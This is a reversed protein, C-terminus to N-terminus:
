EIVVLYSSVNSDSWTITVTYTNQLGGAGHAEANTKTDYTRIRCGTMNSGSYTFTDHYANKNTLGLLEDVFGDITSLTAPLTTGTDTLIDDVIGDITDIKGEISTLTAPLTTGTDVLINDVVTDLTTGTDTLINDVIGDITDIKGEISTLTAPLTTGTDVLINDVITDLTTGTDTLINDVIGDITAIENDITTITAPITTGTDTLINDVIGDITDIKGEISTLTAPLTTGTDTLIDDVITDLTTGTDTLINDVIGDITDIKGEISTLTAPLTTGTDELISDVITDLTTGTDTLINDVIGDITDIKGENTDVNDQIEKLVGDSPTSDPTGTDTIGLVTAIETKQNASWDGSAGGESIAQLSDDTNVFDDWDATAEKSVLKAIISNDAIDTGTVSTQVLHDLGYTQIANDVETNVEATSIDNLNTGATVVRTGYEWVEQATAGGGAAGDSIAQLSDDTNVFDDWDATAEKSVMKAIISNDVVDTGTVSASVLHDLGYTEIAGDCQTNVDAASIDNLNGINTIITDLKTENADIETTLDAEMTDTDILIAATDSKVAAIDTIATDILTDNDEIDGELNTEIADMHTKLDAEMTDTDILIAATDSKVAAIDTIATDILTDNAEIDTELNSEIADLYTKLDAEMTDTDILIADVVGDITAIENDITTITGPITTGTDVLIDDVIGDITDIAEKVRTSILIMQTKADDSKIQVVIYDYNVEAAELELYYIGTSGIETAENTCNAFGDPASGDAWQDIESDPNGSSSVFDGDADVLPFVIRTEVNKDRILEM